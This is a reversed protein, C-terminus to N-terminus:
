KYLKEDIGQEITTLPILTLYFFLDESPELDRDQYFTKKFKLGAVLCDNKYEYILDYYETLNIEKNRRTKFSLFNKNDFNITSTNEIIHASGILDNEEIFNFDTVFNNLSFGVGLDHYKIDQINNDSAFNYEFNVFDNKNYDISGFIYSRKKNLTTKEPIPGEIKDRIVSALKVNMENNTEINSNKYDLGFTLSRGSELSDELGLRNVSFINSANIARDTKSHNKMDGPNFRLSVKPTLLEINSETEKIAPYSTNFEFINMLESQPSSKYIADEKAVTNVNKFYINFNSKFGTKSNLFDISSFNIDNIVRTRLNNTNQLTNNGNSYFNIRGLNNKKVTDYRFYPLIFQYRDSQQQNLDEYSSFGTELNFKENRLTLDIGSSLVNGDKPKTDNNLLYSDFIKLYTDKNTKELYLDLKSETFNEYDLDIVSKAFLHLINKKKSSYKSKFKNVLGFDIISSSKLNEQRYEGQFSNIGSDFFTPNLTFDKSESIVFYYPSTISDGLINSKNIRPQLFGSQRNVTPDPHFFKPFYLIPVDYIRLTANNYILQKKDKDHIIENAQIAWPPCNENKGCSTFVGKNIKTINGKKNSSVGMVRPDNNSDDFINKHLKILSDKAIFDNSILNVIASSFYFNDSSPKSYDTTILLEEGKLEGSEIKYIFNKINYLNFKDKITMKKQSKLEKLKKFFIIDESIFDYKSHIQGTTQGKSYIKEKNLEYAAFESYIKYDEVKDEIIVNKKANIINKSRDYEFENALIEIQDKPSIARSNNKTLIINKNKKYILNETFILYNEIKDIIKVNGTASLLNIDKIYEFEDAEIEVGDITTIKGRNTGIFKNGNELIEIETVDFNFQEAGQASYCVLSIFLFILLNFIRSIM